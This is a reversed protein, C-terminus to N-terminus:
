LPLTALTNNFFLFTELTQGPTAYGYLIEEGRGRLGGWWSMSNTNKGSSDLQYTGCRVFCRRRHRLYRCRFDNRNLCTRYRMKIGRGCSFRSRRSMHCAGWSQWQSYVKGSVNLTVTNTFLYLLLYYYFLVISRNRMQRLLIHTKDVLNSLVGVRTTGMEMTRCVFEWAM